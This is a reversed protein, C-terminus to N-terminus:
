ASRLGRKLACCGRPRAREHHAQRVVVGAVSAGVSAPSAMWQSCGLEGDEHEKRECEGRTLRGRRGNPEHLGASTGGWRCGWHRGGGGALRLRRSSWGGRSGRCGFRLRGVGGACRRWRADPEHGDAAPLVVCADQALVAHGHTPAQVVEALRRRRFVFAESCDVATCEVTAAEPNVPRDDAPASLIERMCVRLM